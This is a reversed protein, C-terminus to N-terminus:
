MLTFTWDPKSAILEAWAEDSFAANVKTASLTATGSGSLSSIFERIREETNLDTYRAASVIYQIGNGFPFRYSGSGFESLTLTGDKWSCKDLVSDAPMPATQLATSYYRAAAGIVYTVSALDATFFALNGSGYQRPDAGWVNIIQPEFPIDIKATTGGDGAFAATFFKSKCEESAEGYGANYGTEIGADYGKREGALYADEVGQAMERTKFTRESGVRLRLAEAIQEYYISDTVGKAM